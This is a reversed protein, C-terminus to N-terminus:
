GPAVDTTRGAQGNAPAATRAQSSGAARGASLEEVLRIVGYQYGRRRYVVSPCGDQADRFLFFDHGVLEMEFLAQDIAMPRALHFKERVVLPGDGEMEIPVVDDPEHSVGDDPEEPRFEDSGAMAAEARALRDGSAQRPVPPLQAAATAQVALLGGAALSVAAEDIVPEGPRSAPPAARRAKRRDGARRLRSELKALAMDLAAYRDQGAAEARIAPGRSRITLEVRERRDAQRPNREASVEVDIRIAKQDLKGIRSLKATARERFREQVDTHRGKFIIDV